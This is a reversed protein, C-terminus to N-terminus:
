GISSPCEMVHLEPFLDSPGPIPILPRDKPVRFAVPLTELESVPMAPLGPKLLKLIAAIPIKHTVAATM